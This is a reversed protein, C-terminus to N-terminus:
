SHLAPLVSSRRELAWLLRTRNMLLQNHQRPLNDNM